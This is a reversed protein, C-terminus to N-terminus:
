KGDAQIDIVPGAAFEGALRGGVTRSSELSSPHREETSQTRTHEHLAHSYCFPLAQWFIRIRPLQALLIRERDHM